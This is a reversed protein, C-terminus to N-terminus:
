FFGLERLTKLKVLILINKILDDSENNYQKIYKINM